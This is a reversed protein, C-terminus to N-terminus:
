KTNTANTGAPGAPPTGGGAPPGNQGAPGGHPGPRGTPPNPMITVVEATLSGDSNKTGEAGIYVGAKLASFSSVTQTPGNSGMAVTVYRTSATVHITTTSAGRPDTVTITTGSVSKIQGGARPLVIQIAEANLSGDSNKTGEAGIQTGVAIDSLSATQGARQVTTSASTHIAQTAGQRDQITITSGSIATVKGGAQPLVIDVRTAAISGDSNRQGMVHIAEGSTIASLSVTKGARTYQTSASVKVTISVGDPRKATITQGSVNSVTLAGAGPGMGPGGPGGKGLGGNGPGGNGPGGNNAGDTLTAFTAQLGSLSAAHATLATAGLGAAIGLALLAAAVGGGIALWRRRRRLRPPRPAMPPVMPPQQIFQTDNLRQADPPQNAPFSMGHEDM